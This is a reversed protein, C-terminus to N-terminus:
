EENSQAACSIIAAMQEGTLLGDHKLQIASEAMCSVYDGHNFADSCVASNDSIIAGITDGNPLSWDILGTDCGNIVVKPPVLKIIETPGYEGSTQELAYLNSDADCTLEEVLNSFTAILEMQGTYPNQALVRWPYVNDGFEGFRPAGFVTGYRNTAIATWVAEELVVELENDYNQFDPIRYINGWYQDSWKRGPFIVSDEDTTAIGTPRFTLFLFSESVVGTSGDIKLIQGADPYPYNMYNNDSVVESVYLNDKEDFDLGSIGELTSDFSAYFDPEGSYDDAASFFLIQYYGAYFDAVLDNAYLNNHSDFALASSRFPLDFFDETAWGDHINAVSFDQGYANSIFFAAITAIFAIVFFKSMIQKM